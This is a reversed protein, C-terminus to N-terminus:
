RDSQPAVSGIVILSIEVGVVIGFRVPGGEAALASELEWDRWANIGGAIGMMLSLAAGGALPVRWTRPPDEQAWGFWMFAAVGFIAAMMATDRVFATGVM